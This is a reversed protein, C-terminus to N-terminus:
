SRTSVSNAGFAQIGTGGGGNISQGGSAILGTGGSITCCLSNGGTAIVGVSDFTSSTGGQARLGIGKPGGNATIGDGFTATNSVVLVSTQQPTGGTLILPVPLGLPSAHTGAGKLTYDRSVTALGATTQLTSDPIRIGGQASMM